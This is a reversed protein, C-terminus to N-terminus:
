GEMADAVAGVVARDAEEQDVSEQYANLDLDREIGDRVIQILAAPPLADLEYCNTGYKAIYAKYRSDATKAPNPILDYSQVQDFNLSLRDVIVDDQYLLAARALVDRTMDQGSPDHDGLYLIVPTRYDTVTRGRFDWYVTVSAYGRAALLGVGYQQCVDDLVGVLAEKEVWVEILQDQGELRDRRYVRAASRVAAVPSDHTWAQRIQRGRDEIADWDLVGALRAQTVVRGLSKYEEQKNAIVALSVLQYYLQRLTLTLGQAQYSDVVTLLTSLLEKNRGRPKWGDLFAMKM